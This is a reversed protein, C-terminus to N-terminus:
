GAVASCLISFQILLAFLVVAALIGLLWIFITVKDHAWSLTFRSFRSNCDPCRFYKRGSLLHLLNEFERVHSHRVDERGYAPCRM